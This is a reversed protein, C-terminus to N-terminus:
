NVKAFLYYTNTIHQLYKNIIIVHMHMHMHAYAYAYAHVYVVYVYIDHGHIIPYAAGIQSIM